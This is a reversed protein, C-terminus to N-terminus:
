CHRSMVSDKLAKAQGRFKLDAETDREMILSPLYRDKRPKNDIEAFHLGEESAQSSRVFKMM